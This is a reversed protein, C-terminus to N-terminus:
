VSWVAAQHEEPLPEGLKKLTALHSKVAQWISPYVYYQVKCEAATEKVIRAMPILHMQSIRPFLHHAVHINLGGSIWTIIRSGPCFDATTRLVHQAFSTTINGQADPEPWTTDQHLHTVQFIVGLAIGSVIHGLVFGAIVQVAPADLVVLPIVLTYTIVVAKTWLLYLFQQASHKQMRIYGIRKRFFSFFDLFFM